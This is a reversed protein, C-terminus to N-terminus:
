STKQLEVRTTTTDKETVEDQTKSEDNKKENKQKIIDKQNEIIAERPILTIPGRTTFLKMIM